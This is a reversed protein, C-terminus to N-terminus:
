HLFFAPYVLNALYNLNLLAAKVNETKTSAFFIVSKIFWCDESEIIVLFPELDVELYSIKGLQNNMRHVYLTEGYIM